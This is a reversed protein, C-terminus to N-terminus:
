KGFFGRELPNPAPEKMPDGEKERRVFHATSCAHSCLLGRDSWYAPGNEPRGSHHTFEAHGYPKGCEVCARLPTKDLM